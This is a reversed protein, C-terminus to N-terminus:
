SSLVSELRHPWLLVRPLIGELLAAQEGRVAKGKQTKRGQSPSPPWAGGPLPEPWVEQFLLEASTPGVHGPFLESALVLCDWGSFPGLVSAAVAALLVAPGPFPEERLVELHSRM